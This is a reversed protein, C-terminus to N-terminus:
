EKDTFFFAGENIDHIFGIRERGDSYKLVAEQNEYGVLKNFGISDPNKIDKIVKEGDPLTFDTIFYTSDDFKQINIEIM